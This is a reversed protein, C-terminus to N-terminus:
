LLHEGHRSSCTCCSAGERPKCRHVAEPPMSRIAPPKRQQLTGGGDHPSIPLASPRNRLLVEVGDDAVLEMLAADARRLPLDCTCPVDYSEPVLVPM